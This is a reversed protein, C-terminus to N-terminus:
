GKTWTAGKQSQVFNIIERMENPHAQVRICVSAARVQVNTSPSLQVSSPPAAPNDTTRNVVPPFVEEEDFSFDDLVPPKFDPFGISLMDSDISALFGLAGQLISNDIVALEALRNDALVYALEENEDSFSQYIVPCEIELALAALRRAHGKIIYGTEKSVTVVDRWGFRRISACLAQIQDKPHTNPNQPHVKLSSPKEMRDFLCHVQITNGSM